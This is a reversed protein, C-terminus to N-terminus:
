PSLQLRGSKAANLCEKECDCANNGYALSRGVYNNFYDMQKNDGCVEHTNGVKLAGELGIVQTM